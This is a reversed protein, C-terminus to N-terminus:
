VAACHRFPIDNQACLAFSDTIGKFSFPNGCGNVRSRLSSFTHWESRSARFFGYYGSFLFFPNGCGNVRSRLSSFTHWESRLAHFFGYYGLFFFPNGCGNVRSRLSLFTHWESRLARFFGCNGKFSFVSQWLRKYPKAIVFLYTM